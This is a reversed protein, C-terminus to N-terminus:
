PPGLIESTVNRPSLCKKEFFVTFFNSSMQIEPLMGESGDVEQADQVVKPLHNLIAKRKFDGEGGV